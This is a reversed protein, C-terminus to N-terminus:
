SIHAIKLLENHNEIYVRRGEQRILGESEFQALTRMVTEPTTGTWEAIDRRTWKSDPLEGKFYLLAEAVRSSVPKSIVASMRDEAGHLEKSMQKLFSLSLSPETSMIGKLVDVPIFCVETNEHAVATAHYAEEAFLARYGIVEGRKHVRLLIEKGDADHHNLKIVGSSICYVGKPIDGERFLVEGKKFSLLTKQNNIKDLNNQKLTCFHSDSFGECAGCMRSSM